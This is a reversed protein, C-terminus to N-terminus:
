RRRRFIRSLKQRFFFPVSLAGAIIAQIVLSGAGPDIYAFVMLAVESTHAVKMDGAHPPRCSGITPTVSSSWRCDDAAHARGLRAGAAELSPRPMRKQEGEAPNERVVNFRANM